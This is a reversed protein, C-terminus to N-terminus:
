MWVAFQLCNPQPWKTLQHRWISSDDRRYIKIWNKPGDNRCPTSCIHCNAMQDKHQLMVRFPQRAQDLRGTTKSALDTNTNSLAAKTNTGSDWVWSLNLISAFQLYLWKLNKATESRKVPSSIAVSVTALAVLVKFKAVLFVLKTAM